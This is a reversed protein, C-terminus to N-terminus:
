DSDRFILAGIQKEPGQKRNSLRAPMKSFSNLWVHVSIESLPLHGVSSIPTEEVLNLLPRDITSSDDM